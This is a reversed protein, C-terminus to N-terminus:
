TKSQMVPVLEKAGPIQEFFPYTSKTYYEGGNIATVKYDMPEKSIQRILSFPVFQQQTKNILVAVGYYSPKNITGFRLVPDTEGGLCTIQGISEASAVTPLALLILPLLKLLM